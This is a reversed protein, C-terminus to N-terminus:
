KGSGQVGFGSGEEHCPECSAPWAEGFDELILSWDALKLRIKGGGAFVLQLGDKEPLLALLDLMNEARSQDIGQLQVGEVGKVHVASRVREFCPSAGEEHSERCFRQAVLVFDKEEPRYTMDCIPVIADQLIASIVQIDENDKARLKLAM